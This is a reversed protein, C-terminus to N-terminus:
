GKTEPATASVDPPHEDIGRGVNFVGLLRMTFVFNKPEFLTRARSSDDLHAFVIEAEAVLRDGVHATASVMAGEPRLDVIEADYV